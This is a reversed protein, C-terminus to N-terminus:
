KKYYIKIMYPAVKCALSVGVFGKSIQSLTIPNISKVEKNALKYQLYTLNDSFYSKTSGTFSRSLTFLMQTGDSTFTYGYEKGRLASLNAYYNFGTFSSCPNETDVKRKLNLGYLRPTSALSYNFLSSKYHPTINEFYKTLTGEKVDLIDRYTVGDIIGSTLADSGGISIVQGEFREFDDIGVEGEFFGFTDTYICSYGVESLSIAEITKGSASIAHVTCEEEDSPARIIEESGDTYRFCLGVADDYSESKFRFHLTYRTNKKFLIDNKSIVDGYPYFIYYYMSNGSIDIMNDECSFCSLNSAFEEGSMLNKKHIKLTIPYTNYISNLGGSPDGSDSTNGYIRINDIANERSTFFSTSSEGVALSSTPEAFTLFETVKRHM